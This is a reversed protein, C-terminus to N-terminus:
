MAGSPPTQTPPPPLLVASSFRTVLGLSQLLSDRLWRNDGELFAIRANLIERERPTPIWGKYIGVLIIFMGAPFGGRALFDYWTLADVPTM